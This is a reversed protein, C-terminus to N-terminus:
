IPEQNHVDNLPRSWVTAADQSQFQLLEQLYVYFVLDKTEQTVNSNKFISYQFKILLASM